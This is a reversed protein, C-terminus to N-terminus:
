RARCHESLVRPAYSPRYFHRDNVEVSLFRQGSVVMRVAYCHHTPKSRVSLGTNARFGHDLLPETHIKLRTRAVVSEQGRGRQEGQSPRSCVGFPVGGKSSLRKRTRCEDFNSSKSASLDFLSRNPPSRVNKTNSIGPHIKPLDCSIKTQRVSFFARLYRSKAKTRWHDSRDVVENRSVSAQQTL